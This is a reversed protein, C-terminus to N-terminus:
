GNKLGWQALFYADTLDYRGKTKPVSSFVDRFHKPLNEFMEEKKAKGNDTAFKKLSAPAVSKPYSCLIVSNRLFINIIGQLKALDRTANTQSGFSLGEIVMVDPEYDECFARVKAAIYQCRDETNKTTDSTILRYEYGGGTDLMVLGTNTLSQDIGVSRM